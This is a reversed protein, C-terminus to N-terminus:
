DVMGGGSRQVLRHSQTDLKVLVEAMSPSVSGEAATVVPTNGIAHLFQFRSNANSRAM